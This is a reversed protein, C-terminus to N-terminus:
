VLLAKWKNQGHQQALDWNFTGNISIISKLYNDWYGFDNLGATPNSRNDFTERNTISREGDVWWQCFERRKHALVQQQEVSMHELRPYSCDNGNTFSFSEVYGTSNPHIYDLFPGNSMFGKFYGNRIIKLLFVNDSQGTTNHECWGGVEEWVEKRFAVAHGGGLHGPVIYTNDGLYYGDKMSPNTPSVFGIMPKKLTKAIQQLGPQTFYCDDNMFLIFDSQAISVMRNASVNLGMNRGLNCILTSAYESCLKYIEDRLHPASGDDHVIIECPMDAYERISELCRKLYFPRFFSTVVISIFDSPGFIHPSSRM